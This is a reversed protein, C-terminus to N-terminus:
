HLLCCTPGEFTGLLWGRLASVDLDFDVYRVTRYLSLNDYVLLSSDFVLSSNDFVPSSYDYVLSSYASVLSSNGYM